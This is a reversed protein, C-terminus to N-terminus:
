KQWVSTATDDILTNVTKNEPGMSRRLKGLSELHRCIQNVQQRPRINAQHALQDDDLGPWRQLTEIVRDTNTTM